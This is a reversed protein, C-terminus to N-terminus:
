WIEVELELEIGTDHYVRERARHILDIVNQANAGPYAVIFNAHKTSIEAAGCREGKLGAQDILAGAAHDAPNKFICGASKAAVAPQTAHKETWIARFRACLAEHDGPTLVFTAATVVGGNLEAHRYGFQLEHRMRAAVHGDPLMVRAQEICDAICGYKGGANQRVAGGVTAPIGALTELGALGREVSQKVLKTFDAGGGAGARSGEFRIWAWDTGALHIVAGAFGEDRVIVNAGRGLVRWPVDHETCRQLVAALEAEDRPTLFWRAPGGLGYWTYEALPIEPRCIPELGSYWPM